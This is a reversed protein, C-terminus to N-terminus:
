KIGEQKSQDQQNILCLYSQGEIDCVAVYWSDEIDFLRLDPLVIDRLFIDRRRENDLVYKPIIDGIPTTGYIFTEESNKDAMYRSYLNGVLRQYAEMTDYVREVLLCKMEKGKM